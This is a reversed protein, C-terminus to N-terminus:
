NLASHPWRAAKLVSTAIPAAKVAPQQSSTGHSRRPSLWHQRQDVGVAHLRRNRRDTQIIDGSRDARGPVFHFQDIQIQALVGVGRERIM